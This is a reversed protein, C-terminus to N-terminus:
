RTRTPRTPAGCRRATPSRTSSSASSSRRSEPQKRWKRRSTSRSASSARRRRRGHHGGPLDRGGRLRDPRQHGDRPAPRPQDGPEHSARLRAHRATRDGAHGQARRRHRPRRSQAGAAAHPPDRRRLGSPDPQPLGHRARPRAPHGRDGQAAPPRLGQLRRAHRHGRAGPHLAAHVRPRGDSAAHAAQRGPPLRQAPRPLAAADLDHRYCVSKLLELTRADMTTGPHRTHPFQAAMAPVPNAVQAREPVARPRQLHAVVARVVRALRHDRDHVRPALDVRAVRMQAIARSSTLRPTQCAPPNGNSTGASDSLSGNM